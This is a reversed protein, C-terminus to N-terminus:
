RHPSALLQMAVACARALSRTSAIGKYAIDYATGHDVSTRLVRLGLTVNVGGEFDLLKLPIHGQDHYMAVVGDYKGRAGQLFVTDPPFPGDVDIGDRQCELVAPRILDRDQHGFAGSEGAHPNLGAVALRPATRLRCLAQHTLRIVHTVRESTVRAIAETLPVHTSVHSVTLKDSILLMVCDSQGCLEAMFETHGSFSPDSLRIAAKHVPLTVVADIRGALALRTAEAIYHRAARGAREDVQGISLETVALANQNLVNLSGPSAESVERIPRLPAGIRLRDNAFALVAHDGVVVADRPLEGATFARLLLEPGIGNPDGMTLGIRGVTHEAKPSSM